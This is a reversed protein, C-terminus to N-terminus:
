EAGATRLEGTDGGRMPLVVKVVTGTDNSLIEFQGDLQRVRERMGPIGVGLNQIGDSDLLETPIGHGFDEVQLVMSNSDSTLRIKAASSGSSRHINGLSEQVIRFMALEAERTAREGNTSIDLEIQIGSRQAFGEAYWRLASNLGLEDLFPPHLLYSITRLERASEEALSSCEVLSQRARPSLAAIEKKAMALHIGLASVKQGTSDHLERAFRRREEDQINLLRASLRRLTQESEGLEKTREAVRSELHELTDQLAEEARRRESIAAGVALTGVSIAGMFLQLMLLSENPTSMVFPGSGRLLGWTAISSLLFMASAAERQGFRLAVWILIPFCMYKLSYEGFHAPLGGSLFYHGLLALSAIAIAAEIIRPRSWRVGSASSWLVVVPTVVVAGAADGQWWTLWIPLYQGWQAFGALALVTVGITASVVTGLLGALFAFRLVDGTREFARRGNAFKTVLFAGVLGELTNGIAIGLSTAVSGATTLNVLFAGVLIAPWVRWGFVLLAGLAIGTPPWVASASPNVYALHLGLKGAGFYVATLGVLLAPDKLSRLVERAQEKL